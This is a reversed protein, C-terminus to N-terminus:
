RRGLFRQHQTRARLCRNERPPGGFTFGNSHSTSWDQAVRLQRFVITKDIRMGIPIQGAGHLSGLGRCFPARRRHELRNTLGRICPGLCDERSTKLNGVRDTGAPDKRCLCPMFIYPLAAQIRDMVAMLPSLRVFRTLPWRTFGAHCTPQMPPGMGGAPLVPFRGAQLLANSNQARSSEKVLLMHRCHSVNTRGRASRPHWATLLTFQGPDDPAEVSSCSLGDRLQVEIKDLPSMTTNIFQRCAFASRHKDRRGSRARHRHDSPHGPRCVARRTPCQFWPWCLARIPM